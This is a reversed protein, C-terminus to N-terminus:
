KLTLSAAKANNYDSLNQKSLLFWKDRQWTNLFIDRKIKIRENM